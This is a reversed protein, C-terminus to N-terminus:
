GWLVQRTVLDLHGTHRLYLAERISVQQLIGLLHGLHELVQWLLGVPPEQVAPPNTVQQVRKIHVTDLIKNVSSHRRPLGLELLLLVQRYIHPGLEGLSQLRAHGEATLEM